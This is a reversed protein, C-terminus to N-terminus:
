PFYSKCFHFQYIPVKHLNSPLFIKFNFWYYKLPGIIIMVYCEYIRCQMINQWNATVFEDDNDDYWYTCTSFINLMSVSIIVGKPFWLDHRISSGRQSRQGKFLKWHMKQCIRTGNLISMIVQFERLTM